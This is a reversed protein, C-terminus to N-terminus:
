EEAHGVYIFVFDNLCPVKAVQWSLKAIKM